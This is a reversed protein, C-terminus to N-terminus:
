GGQTKVNLRSFTGHFLIVQGEETSPPPLAGWNGIGWRFVRLPITEPVLEITSFSAQINLPEVPLIPSPRSGWRIRAKSFSLSLVWAKPPHGGLGEVELKGLSLSLNGTWALTDLPSPGMRMWLAARSAQIQLHTLAVDELRLEARGGQLTLALTLPWQSPIKVTVTRTAIGFLPLLGRSAGRLTLVLTDGSWSSDYPIGSIRIEADPVGRLYFAYGELNVELKVQQPLALTLALGWVSWFVM